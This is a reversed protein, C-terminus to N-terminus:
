DTSPGDAAKPLGDEFEVPLDDDEVHEVAALAQKVSLGGVVKRAEDVTRSRSLFAVMIARCHEGSRLPNIYQWTTDLEKEIAIAEDLTLDDAMFQQGDVTVRFPM